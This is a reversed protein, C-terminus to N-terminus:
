ATVSPGGMEVVLADLEVQSMPGGVSVHVLAPKSSVPTISPSHGLRQIKGFVKRGLGPDMLSSPM